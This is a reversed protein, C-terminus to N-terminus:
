PESFVLNESKMVEVLIPLRVHERKNKGAFPGESLDFQEGRSPSQRRERRSEPLSGRTLSVDVTEFQALM